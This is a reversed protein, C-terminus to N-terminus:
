IEIVCSYTKNSAANRVTDKQDNYIVTNARAIIEAALAHDVQSDVLTCDGRLARREPNNTDCRAARRSVDKGDTRPIENLCSRNIDVQVRVRRTPRPPPETPWPSPSGGNDSCTVYEGNAYVREGPQIVRDAKAASTFGIIGIVTILLAKM